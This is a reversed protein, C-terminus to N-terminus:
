LDTAFGRDYIGKTQEKVSCWKAADKRSRCILYLSEMPTHKAFLCDVNWDKAIKPGIRFGRCGSLRSRQSISIEGGIHSPTGPKRELVSCVQFQPLNHSRLQHEIGSEFDLVAKKQSCCRHLGGSFQVYARCSSFVSDVPYQGFHCIARAYM